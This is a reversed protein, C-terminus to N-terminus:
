VTLENESQIEIGKKFIIAIVWLVVGMFLWVDAGGIRFAEVPLLSIGSGSLWSILGAASYSFLGIGFSIYTIQVLFKGFGKNFPQSFDLQKDTFVKVIFYFLLAKFVSAIFILLLLVYYYGKDFALLSSVDVNGFLYRAGEPNYFSVYLANFLVSGAEICLGIFLVWSLINLVKLITATKIEM